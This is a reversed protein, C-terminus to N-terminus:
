QISSYIFLNSSFKKEAKRLLKKQLAFSNLRSSTWYISKNKSKCNMHKQGKWIKNLFDEGFEFDSLTKGM